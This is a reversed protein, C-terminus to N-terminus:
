SLALIFILYHILVFRNKEMKNHTKEEENCEETPPLPVDLSPNPTPPPPLIESISDGLSLSKSSSTSSSHSSLKPVRPLWGASTRLLPSMLDLHATSPLSSGILLLALYLSNLYWLNFFWTFSSILNCFEFCFSLDITNIESAFIALVFFIHFISLAFNSWLHHLDLKPM